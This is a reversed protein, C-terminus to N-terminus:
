KKTVVTGYDKELADNLHLLSTIVVKKGGKEIFKIASEIKPYMSGRAFQNQALYKKLHAVSVKELKKQNKQKYNIFVFDVDTLIIMREAKLSNALLQTARDKDIVAEVGEIGARTKV